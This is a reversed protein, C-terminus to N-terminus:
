KVLPVNISYASKSLFSCIQILSLPLRDINEPLYLRFFNEAWQDDEDDNLEEDNGDESKKEDNHQYRTLDEEPTIFKRM